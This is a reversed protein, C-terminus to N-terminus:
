ARSRTQDVSRFSIAEAIHQQEIVDQEEMDAITKAIKLVKHYGRASLALKEASRSLLVFATESVACQTGIVGPLLDSNLRGQRRLQRHRARRVRKGVVTSSESGETDARMLEGTQRALELHMDIRETLPGSIRGRYSAIKDATCRCEIRTDGDYGCPCPNMAAILQFRAPFSITRMARTVAVSGSELPERLAELARRNFEPFEDLFLVGNHALSIEGPRPIRGGGVLAAASCSHHPARFPRRRWASLNLPIACLSHIAATELAEDASMEDLLGPLRAALMTKGTGPPGVLLLNHGGSAAIELARKARFQGIIDLLDPCPEVNVDHGQPKIAPLQNLELLHDSVELLSRAAYIRMDDLLAAQLADAHSLILDRGADRAAIAAALAAGVPRLSGDLALEALFEARTLADIPIQKSAGLIGLAIALDFRTGDKPIDGPALNVTIRGRPFDFGSNLLASRVRERSERVATEPLGVIMFKPLGGTLHTEVSVALASTGIQCRSYTRALAKAEM